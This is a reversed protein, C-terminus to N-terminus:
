GPDIALREIVQVLRQVQDTIRLFLYLWLSSKRPHFEINRLHLARDSSILIHFYLKYTPTTGYLVVFYSPNDHFFLDSNM